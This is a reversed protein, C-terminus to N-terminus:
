TADRAQKLLASPSVKALRLVPYGAAIMAALVSYVILLFCDRANL